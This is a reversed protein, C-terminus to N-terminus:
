RKKADKIEKLGQKLEEKLRGHFSNIRGAGDKLKEQIVGEGLTKGKHYLYVTLRAARRVPYSDSLKEIVQPNNAFYNFFYRFVM